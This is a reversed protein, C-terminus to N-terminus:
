AAEGALAKCTRCADPILRIDHLPCGLTSKEPLTVVRSDDREIGGVGFADLLGTFDEVVFRRPAAVLTVTDTAM